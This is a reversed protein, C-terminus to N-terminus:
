LAEGRRWANWFAEHNAQPTAEGLPDVAAGSGLLGAISASLDNSNRKAPDFKANPSRLQAPDKVVLIDGSRGGPSTYNRLM